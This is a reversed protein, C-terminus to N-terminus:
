KHTQARVVQISFKSSWLPKWRYGGKRHVAHQAGSRWAVRALSHRAVSALVRLPACDSRVDPPYTRRFARLQSTHM